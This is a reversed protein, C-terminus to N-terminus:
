FDSQPIVVSGSSSGSQFNSSKNFYVLNYVGYSQRGFLGDQLVSNMLAKLYNSICSIDVSNSIDVFNIAQSYQYKDIVSMLTSRRNLYVSFLVVIGQINQSFTLVDSIIIGLIAIQIQASLMTVSNNILIHRAILFFSKEPAAPLPSMAKGKMNV